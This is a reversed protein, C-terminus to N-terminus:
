LIHKKQSTQEVDDRLLQLEFPIIESLLQNVSPSYNLFHKLM